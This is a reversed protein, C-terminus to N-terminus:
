NVTFQLIRASTGKSKPNSKASLRLKTTHEGARLDSAFM